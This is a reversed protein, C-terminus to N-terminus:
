KACTTTYVHASLLNDNYFGAKRHHCRYLDAHSNIHSFHMDIKSTYMSQLLM